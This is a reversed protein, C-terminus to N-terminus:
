SLQRPNTPSTNESTFDLKDDQVPKAEADQATMSALEGLTLDTLKVTKLVAKKLDESITFGLDEIHYARLEAGYMAKFLRLVDGRTMSIEARYNGMLQFKQHWAIHLRSIYLRRLLREIFITPRSNRSVSRQEDDSLETESLDCEMLEKTGMDRSWGRVEIKM